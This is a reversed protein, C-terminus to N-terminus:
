TGGGSDGELKALMELTRGKLQTEDFVKLRERQGAVITDRLASNLLVLRVTEAARKFDRERFLVGSGGLTERVGPIDYAFVPVGFHTAELLPICFGEHASACLFAHALRYFANLEEQSVHGTFIVDRLRMRRCLALLWAHYLELGVYTGAVILRLNVGRAGAKLCAFTAILDEIKKNPAVRGVFLINTYNGAYQRLVARSPPRDLLARDPWGPFLMTRRFPLGSLTELNFGSVGCCLDTCASLRRLDQRAQELRAATAPFLARFYEPPTVNHFFLVKRDPVSAFYDSLDSAGGYHYILANGPGSCGAHERADLCRERERPGIHAPESFIRSAHGLERLVAQLRLAMNSTADGSSFGQTLQHVEM